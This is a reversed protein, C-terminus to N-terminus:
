VHSLGVSQGLPPRRRLKSAIGGRGGGLSVTAPPRRPLPTCTCIHPHTHSLGEALSQCNPHPLATCPPGQSFFSHESVANKCFSRTCSLHEIITPPSQRNTAIPPQRNTAIPPQHRNTTPPQHRNIATPPQHNTTPLPQRRYATTPAIPRRQRNATPPPRRNTTGPPPGRCFFFHNRLSRGSAACPGDPSGQADAHSQPGGETFGVVIGHQGWPSSAQPSWGM